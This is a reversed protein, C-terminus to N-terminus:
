KKDGNELLKRLYNNERRLAQIDLAVYNAHLVMDDGIRKIDSLFFRVGGLTIPSQIKTIGQVFKNINKVQNILINETKESM